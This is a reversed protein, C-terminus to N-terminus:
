VNLQPDTRLSRLITELSAAITKFSRLEDIVIEQYPTVLITYPTKRIDKEWGTDFNQQVRATYREEQMCIRFENERAGAQVALATLVTSSATNTHAASEFLTDTFKWFGIDDMQEHVCESALHYTPSHPHLQVLPMHRYILAVEGSPGYIDMITRLTGHYERCFPCQFDTYVVLFVLADPSGLIHDEQTIHTSTGSARIDPFDNAAPSTTATPTNHTFLWAFLVACLAVLCAVFLAKKQKM